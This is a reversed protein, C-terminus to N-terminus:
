EPVEYRDSYCAHWERCAAGDSTFMGVIEPGRPLDIWVPVCGSKSKSEIAIASLEETTAAYRRKRGDFVYRPFRVVTAELLQGQPEDEVYYARYPNSHRTPAEPPVNARTPPILADAGMQRAADVFQNFLRAVAAPRVTRLEISGIAEYRIAPRGAFVKPTWRTAPHTTRVHRMM